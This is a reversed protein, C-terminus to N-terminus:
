GYYYHSDPLEAGGGNGAALAESGLNRPIELLEGEGAGQERETPVGRVQTMKHALVGM